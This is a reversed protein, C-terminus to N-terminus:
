MREGFLFLEMGEVTNRSLQLVVESEPFASSNLVKKWETNVLLETKNGLILVRGMGEEQIQEKVMVSVSTYSAMEDSSGVFDLPHSPM